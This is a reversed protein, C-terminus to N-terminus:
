RTTGPIAESRKQAEALEDPTVDGLSPSGDVQKRAFDFGSDIAKKVDALLRQGEKDSTRVQSVAFDIFQRAMEAERGAARIGTLVGDVYAARIMTQPPRGRNSSTVTLGM